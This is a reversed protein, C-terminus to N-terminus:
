RLFIVSAELVLRIIIMCGWCCSLVWLVLGSLKHRFDTVLASLVLCPFNTDTQTPSLLCARGRVYSHGREGFPAPVGQM